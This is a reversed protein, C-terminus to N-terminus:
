EFVEKPCKVGSLGRAEAMGSRNSLPPNKEKGARLADRAGYIRFSLAPVRTKGMDLVAEM